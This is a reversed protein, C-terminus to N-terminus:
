LCMRVTRRTEGFSLYGYKIGVASFARKIFEDPGSKTRRSDVIYDAKEDLQDLCTIALSVKSEFGEANKLDGKITRALIDLDLLGFRLTGQFANPVNTLDKIKSYPKEPLEAPFPGAGHRTAYARTVYIIEVAEETLSAGKLLSIVNKMGTNSRTVHPFYEHNQDLLLGQAGEFIITEFSSLMDIDAIKIMDMMNKVDYIYNEMIGDNGILEDYPEPIRNIGLEKLRVATYSNKIYILKERMLAEDALDKVTLRAADNHLSRAITENFGVGCSGHESSGRVIEAIQNIMMDYPTAVLCNKHAYVEPVLNWREFNRTEKVFLMPNVVFYSSLYTPLGALIFQM